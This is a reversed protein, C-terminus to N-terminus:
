LLMQKIYCEYIGPVNRVQQCDSCVRQWLDEATKMDTAYVGCDKCSGISLFCHHHSRAVATAMFCSWPTGDLVTPVNYKLFGKCRQTVTSANWSSIDVYRATFSTSDGGFIITIKDYLSYTSVEM